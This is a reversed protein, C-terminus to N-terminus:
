SSGRRCPTVDLGIGHEVPRAASPMAFPDNVIAAFLMVPKARAAPALPAQRQANSTLLTLALPRSRLSRIGGGNSRTSASARARSPLASARPVHKAVRVAWRSPLALAGRMSSAASATARRRRWAGGGLLGAERRRGQVTKEGDAAHDLDGLGRVVLRRDGRGAGARKPAEVLRQGREREGAPRLARRQGGDHHSRSSAISASVRAASALGARFTRPSGPSARRSRPPASPIRAAAEVLVPQMLLRDQEGGLGVDALFEVPQLGM